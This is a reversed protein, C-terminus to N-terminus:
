KHGIGDEMYGLQIATNELIEFLQDSILFRKREIELSEEFKGGNYASSASKWDVLMEMLDILTMGNIGNENHEPHHLSKRYHENLAPEIKKLTKFYDESGFKCFDFDKVITYFADFSRVELKDNDHIEGRLRLIDAIRQMGVNVSLKHSIIKNLFEDRSIIPSM